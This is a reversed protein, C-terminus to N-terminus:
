MANNTEFFSANGADDIEVDFSEILIFNETQFKEFQELIISSLFNAWFLWYAVDTRLKFRWCFSLM